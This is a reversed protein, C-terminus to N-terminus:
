NLAIKVSFYTGWIELVMRVVIRWKLPKRHKKNWRTKSKQLFIYIKIEGFYRPLLMFYLLCSICCCLCVFFLCFIVVSERLLWCINGKLSYLQENKGCIAHCILRFGNKAISSMILTKFLRMLFRSIVFDMSVSNNRKRQNWGDVCLVVLLCYCSFAECSSYLIADKEWETLMNCSNVLCDHVASEAGPTAV